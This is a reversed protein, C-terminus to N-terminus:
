VFFMYENDTYFCKETIKVNNEKLLRTRITCSHMSLDYKEVIKTYLKSEIKSELTYEVKKLVTGKKDDIIEFPTIILDADTIELWELYDDLNEECFYDDGDLLKFYKGSAEEIGRNVTSGWGGNQKDIIRFTEPYQSAFESAILSTHDSSGDNIILIELKDKVQTFPYLTEKIYKEVNYAAISITLIKSM